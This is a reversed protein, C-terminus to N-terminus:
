GGERPARIALRLLYGLISGAPEGAAKAKYLRYLSELILYAPGALVLITARYLISTLCLQLIGIM